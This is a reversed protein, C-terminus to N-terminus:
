VQRIFNEDLKSLMPRRDGAAASNFRPARLIPNFNFIRAASCFFFPARHYDSTVRVSRVPSLAPEAPSNKEDFFPIRNAGTLILEDTRGCHRQLEVAPSRHDSVRGPTIRALQRRSSPSAYNGSSVCRVLTCMYTPIYVYAPDAGDDAPSRLDCSVHQASFPLCNAQRAQRHRISSSHSAHGRISIKTHRLRRSAHPRPLPDFTSARVYM